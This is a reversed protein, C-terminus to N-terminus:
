SSKRGLFIQKINQDNTTQINSEKIGTEKHKFLSNFFFKKRSKNKGLMKANKKNCIQKSLFQFYIYTYTYWM